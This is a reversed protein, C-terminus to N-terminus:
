ECARVFEEPTGGLYVIDRYPEAVDRIPTSVIPKEAAM